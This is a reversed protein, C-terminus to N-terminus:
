RIDCFSRVSEAEAGSSRQLGFLMTDAEGSQAGRSQGFDARVGKGFPVLKKPDAGLKDALRLL